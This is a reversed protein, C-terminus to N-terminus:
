RGPSASMKPVVEIQDFSRDCVVGDHDEEDSGFRCVALTEGAPDDHFNLYIDIVEGIGLDGFTDRVVDGIKFDM